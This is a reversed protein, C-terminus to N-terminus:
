LPLSHALRTPRLRVRATRGRVMGFSRPHGLMENERPYCASDSGGSVMVGWGAAQVVLNSYIAVHTESLLPAFVTKFECQACSSSSQSSERGRPTATLVGCVALLIVLARSAQSM